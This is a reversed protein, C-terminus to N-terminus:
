VRGELNHIKNCKEIFETGVRQSMYTVEDTEIVELGTGLIFISKTSNLTTDLTSM